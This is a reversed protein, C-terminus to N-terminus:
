WGSKRLRGVSVRDVNEGWLSAYADSESQKCIAAMELNRLDHAYIDWEARFRILDFAENTWAVSSSASMTALQKKYDMTILYEGDPPPYFRINNQRYAWDAPPGDVLGTDEENIESYHTRRLPTQSGSIKVIIEGFGKFDPPGAYTSTSSTTTMTAKGELFWWSEREYHRVAADIATAIAATKDTRHLDSEISSKLNTLTSM